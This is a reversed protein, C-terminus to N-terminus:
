QFLKLDVGSGMTKYGEANPHLWDNEYLFKKQLAEPNASDRIIKDFDIVADFAGSTRIWTNVKKRAAEHDATYYNNGKFPTITGGYVKIGKAHAEAIMKKYAEILANATQEGNRSGGLDNIGEFIIVYKVGEQQM